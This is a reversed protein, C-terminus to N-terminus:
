FSDYLPAKKMTKSCISSRFYTRNTKRIWEADMQHLADDTIRFAWNGDPIGPQNMKCDGGFGCLDQVPAIALMAPSAWLARIM